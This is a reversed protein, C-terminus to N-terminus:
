KLNLCRACHRDKPQSLKKEMDGIKKDLRQFSSQTRDMCKSLQLFGEDAVTSVESRSLTKSIEKEVSEVKSEIDFIRRTVNWTPSKNSKRSFDHSHELVETKKNLERLRRSLELNEEALTINKIHLDKISPNPKLEYSSSPTFTPRSYVPFKRCCNGTCLHCRNCVLNVSMMHKQSLRESEQILDWTRELSNEIEKFTPLNYSFSSM